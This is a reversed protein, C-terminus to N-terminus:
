QVDQGGHASEHATEANEWHGATITVTRCQVRVRGLHPMDQAELRAAHARAEQETPFGSVGDRAVRWETTEIRLAGSM